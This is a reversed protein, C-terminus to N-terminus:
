TNQEFALYDYENIRPLLKIVHNNGVGNPALVWLSAELGLPGTDHNTKIVRWDAKRGKTQQIAQFCKIRLALDTSNQSRLTFLM